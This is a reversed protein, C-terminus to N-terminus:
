VMETALVTEPTAPSLRADGYLKEKAVAVAVAAATPGQKGRYEDSKLRSCPWRSSGITEVAFGTLPTGKRSGEYPVHM